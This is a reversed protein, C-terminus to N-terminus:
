WRCSASSRPGRSRRRSSPTTTPPPRSQTRTATADGDALGGALGEVPGDLLMDIPGDAAPDVPADDAVVAATASDSEVVLAVASVQDGERLNM